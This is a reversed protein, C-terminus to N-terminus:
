GNNKEAIKSFYDIMDQHSIVKRSPKDIPLGNRANKWPDENHTMRELEFATYPSFVEYIEKLHKVTDKLMKIKSPKSSIPEWGCDKFRSYVSYIVPGHIWAEIPDDFLPIRYLALYWAQAYYVLKQLKLNTILDGHARSYILFFDAVQNATTVAM